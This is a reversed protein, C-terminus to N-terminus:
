WSTVLPLKAKWEITINEYKIEQKYSIHHVTENNMLNKTM